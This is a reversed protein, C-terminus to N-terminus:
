YRDCYCRKMLSRVSDVYAPNPLEGSDFSQEVGGDGANYAAIVMNLLCMDTHSRCARTSLDYKKGFYNDGFKKTLWALYNAGVVANQQYSGADYDKEFRQNVFAVTDPMAQMLGFGGDCNVINSQWGSEQWAVAKVLDAPVKLRPASTPWYVRAAAATLAAKAKKKSVAAGEYDACAPKQDWHQDEPPATTVKKSSKPSTTTRGTPRRTAPAKPPRSASPSTTEAPVPASEQLLEDAVPAQAAPESAASAREGAGADDNVLGCGTMVTLVLAAAALGAVRRRRLAHM